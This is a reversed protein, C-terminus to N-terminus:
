KRRSFRDSCFEIKSSSSLPSKRLIEKWVSGPNSVLLKAQLQSSSQFIITFVEDHHQEGEHTSKQQEYISVYM